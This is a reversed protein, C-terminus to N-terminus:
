RSLVPEDGALVVFSRVIRDVCPECLDPKEERPGTSWMSSWSWMSAGGGFSPEESKEDDDDDDADAATEALPKPAKVIVFRVEYAGVRDERGHNAAGEFFEGCEDCRYAIM